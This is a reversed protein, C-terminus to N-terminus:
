KIDPLGTNNKYAVIRANVTITDSVIFGGEGEKPYLNNRSLYYIGWDIRNLFVPKTIFYLSDNKVYYDSEFETCIGIDFIIFDGLIKYTNNEKHEVSHLKFYSKPYVKTNFFEVSKLVNELTGRMLDYDIDTDTISNMDLTFDVDILKKDNLLLDGEEIKVYGYHNNCKWNVKSKATDIKYYVPPKEKQNIRDPASALVFLWSFSLIFFIKGIRLLYRM